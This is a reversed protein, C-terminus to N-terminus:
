VKDYGRKLAEDEEPTFPRRKKSRTKEFISTGDPLSARVKSSLHTKANPYHQKYADPFFTRFRLSNTQIIHPSLADRWAGIRLTWQHGIISHSRHITSSSRGTAWVGSSSSDSRFMVRSSLCVRNCGEVLMQTEEETWKKRPKKEVLSPISDLLKPDGSTAETKPPKNAKDSAVSSTGHASMAELGMEDRFSWGSAPTFRPSSPLSVRRQKGPSAGGSRPPFPATFSFTSSPMPNSSSSSPQPEEVAMTCKSYSDARQGVRRPLPSFTIISIPYLKSALCCVPRHVKPTLSKVLNYTDTPTLRQHGLKPAIVM